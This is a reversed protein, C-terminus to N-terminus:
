LAHLFSAATTHHHHYHYHNWYTLSLSCYWKCLSASLSCNGLCVCVCMCRCVYLSRYSTHTRAFAHQDLRTDVHCQKWNAGDNRRNRKLWIWSFKELNKFNSKTSGFACQVSCTSIFIGVRITIGNAHIGNTTIDYCLHTLVMQILNCKLCKAFFNLFMKWVYRITKPSALTIPVLTSSSSSSSPLIAPPQFPYSLHAHTCVMCPSWHANLVRHNPFLVMPVHSTCGPSIFM